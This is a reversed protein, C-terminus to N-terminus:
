RLQDVERGGPPPPDRGSRSPHRRHRGLGRLAGRVVSRARRRAAAARLRHREALPVVRPLHRREPEPRPQRRGAPRLLAGRLELLRGRDAGPQRGRRLAPRDPLVAHRGRRHQEAATGLVPLRRPHHDEGGLPDPRAVPRRGPVGRRRQLVRGQRRRRRALPLRPAGPRHPGSGSRRRAASRARRGGRRRPRGSDVARRGCEPGPRHVARPRHRRRPQLAVAPCGAPAPVPRPRPQPQRRGDLRDPPAM